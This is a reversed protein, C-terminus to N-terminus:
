RDEEKHSEQEAPGAEPLLWWDWLLEEATPEDLPLGAPEIAEHEMVM